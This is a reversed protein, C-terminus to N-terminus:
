ISRDFHECLNYVKGTAIDVDMLAKKVAALFIPFESLTVIRQHGNEVIAISEATPSAAAARFSSMRSVQGNSAGAVAGAMHDLAEQSPSMPPLGFPDVHRLPEMPAPLTIADHFFASLAPPVFLANHQPTPALSGLMSFVGPVTYRLGFETFEGASVRQESVLGAIKRLSDLFTHLRTEDVSYSVTPPPSLSFHLGQPSGSPPRRSRPSEVSTFSLAPRFLVSSNPSHPHDGVQRVLSRHAGVASTSRQHPLSLGAMLQRHSTSNGHPSLLASHSSAAPPLSYHHQQQYPQQQAGCHNNPSSANSHGGQQQSHHNAHPLQNGVGGSPTHHHRRHHHHQQPHQPQERSGSGWESAEDEFMTLDEASNVVDFNSRPHKKKQQQSHHNAHPLQNGVGGSPTHHHRRHHHHQQPHQPQERSGSGWESAEDEFMTLDEASNVVDFNLFPPATSDDGDSLNREHGRHRDPHFFSRATRVMHQINTGSIHDEAHSTGLPSLKGNVVGGGRGRSSSDRSGGEDNSPQSLVLVPVDSLLDEINELQAGESISACAIVIDALIQGIRQRAFSKLPPRRQQRVPLGAPNTGSSRRRGLHHPLPSTTSKSRLSAPPIASGDSSAGTSGLVCGGGQTTSSSSNSALLPPVVHVRHTPQVHHSHHSEARVLGPPPSSPSTDPNLQDTRFLEMLETASAVSNTRNTRGGAAAAAIQPSGGRAGSSADDVPYRHQSVTPSRPQQHQQSHHSQTLASRLTHLQANLRAAHLASHEQEQRAAYERSLSLDIKNDDMAAYVPQPGVGGDDEPFRRYAVRGGSRRQTLMLHNCYEEYVAHLGGRQQLFADHSHRSAIPSKTALIPPPLMM